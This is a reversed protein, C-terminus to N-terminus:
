KFFVTVIGYEGDYDKDISLITYKSGNVAMGNTNIDILSSTIKEATRIKLKGLLGIVTYEKRKSRPLYSDNEKYNPNLMSLEIHQHDDPITIEIEIKNKLKLEQSIPHGSYFINNNDVFIMTNFLHSFFQKFTEVKKIGWEDVDFKHKWSFEASDGIFGPTPSVIGILKNGGITIKGNEVLSVAYGYRKEGAPNQDNWEFYEGYDAPGADTGGEFSGIGTLFGLRIRNGAGGGGGILQYAANSSAGQGFVFSYAHSATNSGGLAVAHSASATNSTGIAISKTSSALCSTGGAISWNGSATNSQGMLVLAHGGSATNSFGNIISSYTGTVNCNWGNLITSQVNTATCNRGQGIFSRSGSSTSTSGNLVSSYSGSAVNTKGNIIFAFNNNVTHGSGNLITAYTTTGANSNGAVISFIGSSTNSGNVSKISNGGTGGSWVFTSGTYWNNIAIRGVNLTDGSAILEM